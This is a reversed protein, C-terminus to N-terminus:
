SSRLEIIKEKISQIQSKTKQKVSELDLEDIKNEIFNLGDSIKSFYDLGGSSTTEDSSTITSCCPKKKKVLLFSILMGTGLACVLKRM